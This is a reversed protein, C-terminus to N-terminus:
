RQQNVGVTPCRDKAKQAEVSVTIHPVFRNAQEGIFRAAVFEAVQQDALIVPDADNAVLSLGRDLLPEHRAVQRVQKSAEWQHHVQEREPPPTQRMDNVVDYFHKHLRPTVGREGLDDLCRSWRDATLDNSYGELHGALM